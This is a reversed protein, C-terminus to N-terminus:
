GDSTRNSALDVKQHVYHQFFYWAMGYLTVHSYDARTNKSCCTGSVSEAPRPLPVRVHCNRVLSGLCFPTVDLRSADTRCHSAGNLMSHSRHPRVQRHRTPLHNCRALHAKPSGWSLYSYEDSLRTHTLTPDYRQQHQFRVEDEALRRLVSPCTGERMSADRHIGEEKAAQFLCMDVDSKTFSQPRQGQCSPYGEAKTGFQQEGRALPGESQM